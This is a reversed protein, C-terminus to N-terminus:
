DGLKLPSKGNRERMVTLESLTYVRPAGDTHVIGARRVQGLGMHFGTDCVEGNEYFYKPNVSKNMKLKKTAM